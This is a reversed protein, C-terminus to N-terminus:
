SAKKGSRNYVLFSFDEDIKNQSSGIKLEVNLLNVNKYSFSCDTIYFLFSEGNRYIINEDQEYYYHVDNDQEISLYVNDDLIEYKYASKFDSVIKSYNNKLNDIVLVRDIGKSSFNTSTYIITGVVLSILGLISIYMLMEILTFNKKNRIM